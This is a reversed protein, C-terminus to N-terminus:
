GKQHWLGDDVVCLLAVCEPANLIPLAVISEHRVPPFDDVDVLASGHVADLSPRTAIGESYGPVLELVVSAEDHLTSDLVSVVSTVGGESDSCGLLLALDLKVDVRGGEPHSAM